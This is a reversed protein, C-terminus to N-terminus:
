NTLLKELSSVLIGYQSNLSLTKEKPITLCNLHEMFTEFNNSFLNLNRITFRSFSVEILIWIIKSSLHTGFGQISKELHFIDLIFQLKRIFGFCWNSKIIECLSVDIVYLCYKILKQNWPWKPKHQGKESVFRIIKKNCYLIQKKKKM